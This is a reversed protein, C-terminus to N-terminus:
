RDGNSEGRRRDVVIGSIHGDNCPFSLGSNEHVKDLQHVTYGKEFIEAAGKGLSPMKTKKEM